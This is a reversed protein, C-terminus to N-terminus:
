HITGMAITLNGPLPPVVSIFQCFGM